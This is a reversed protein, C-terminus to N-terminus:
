RARSRWDTASGPDSETGSYDEGAEAPYRREFSAVVARGAASDAGVTDAAIEAVRAALKAQARRMVRLIEQAIEEAPRKRVAEGLRIDSVTGSGAVTVEVSGDQSAASVSVQAVEESM